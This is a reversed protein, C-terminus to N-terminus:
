GNKIIMGLLILLFVFILLAGVGAATASQRTNNGNRNQLKTFAWTGLGGAVIISILFNSM